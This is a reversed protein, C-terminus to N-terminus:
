RDSPESFYHLAAQWLWDSKKHAHELPSVTYRTTLGLCVADITMKGNVHVLKLGLM